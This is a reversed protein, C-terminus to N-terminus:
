PNLYKKLDSLTAGTADPASDLEEHPASIRNLWFRRYGFWKAGADDWSAFPVFLIQEKPVKFADIAMEYAVPAPKFAKVADTSLVHEFVNELKSNRICATLMRQTFNSLFALRLGAARLDRLAPAVDPYAKLELFANMLRQRNADALELRLSRAAFVLADETVQWFDAYRQAITRLWTYQFQRARWLTMLEAGRTPFLQDALAAIAHVDFIALADFAICTVKSEATAPNTTAAGAPASHLVMGAAITKAALATFDRRTLSKDDTM